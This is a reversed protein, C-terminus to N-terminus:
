TRQHFLGTKNRSGSREIQSRTKAKREEQQEGHGSVVPLIWELRGTPCAQTQNHFRRRDDSCGLSQASDRYFITLSDAQENVRKWEDKFAM